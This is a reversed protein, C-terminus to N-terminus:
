EMFGVALLDPHLPMTRLSVETKVKQNEGEDSIRICPM